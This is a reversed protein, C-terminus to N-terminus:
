ALSRLFRLDQAGPHKLLAPPLTLSGADLYRLRGAVILNGLCEPTINNGGLVLHSIGTWPIDSFNSRGTLPEDLQQRLDKEFRESQLSASTLINSFPASSASWEFYHNDPVTVTADSGSEEFCYRQLVHLGCDTLKNQSIDLFRVRRRLAHVMVELDADKLGVGSLKLLKLERLASLASLFAHDRASSAGSVDLYVLRPFQPIAEALATPTLNEAQKAELLRLNFKLDDEKKRAVLSLSRLSRHDLCALGSVYLSESDTNVGRSPTSTLVSQGLSSDHAHATPDGWLLPM